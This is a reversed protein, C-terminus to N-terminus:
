ESCDPLKDEKLAALIRRRCDPCCGYGTMILDGHDEQTSNEMVETLEGKILTRGCDLCIPKIAQASNMQMHSREIQHQAQNIIQNNLKVRTYASKTGRASPGVPEDSLYPSSEQNASRLLRVVLQQNDLVMQHREAILKLTGLLEEGDWPKTIYQIIGARNVALIVANLDAYATMLVRPTDPAIKAAVALFEAGTMTPMRQDSMVLALSQGSALIELAERTDSTTLVHFDRRLLDALSALIEKEDDVILIGPKTPSGAEIM